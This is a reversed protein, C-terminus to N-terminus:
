KETLLTKVLDVVDSACTAYGDAGIERCFRETIPAGGVIVKVGDRLGAAKLAEITKRQNEMTTTLLASLALIDPNYIRVSEVIKAPTTDVGLDKIEIGSCELTLKILTKGIDHLDGEVTTIIMKGHLSVSNASLRDRIVDLGVKLAKSAQLLEAIFIESNRFRVSLEDLGRLLGDDLINQPDVGHDLGLRILEVVEKVYGSQVKLSIQELLPGSSM